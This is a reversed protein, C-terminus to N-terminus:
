AMLIGAQKLLKAKEKDLDAEAVGNMSVVKSLKWSGYLDEANKLETVANKSEGQAGDSKCGIVMVVSVMLLANIVNKIM